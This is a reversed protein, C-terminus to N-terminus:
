RKSPIMTAVRIAAYLLRGRVARVAVALLAQLMGSSIPFLRANPAGHLCQKARAAAALLRLRPSEFLVIFRTFRQERLEGVLRFLAPVDRLAYHSQQTHVVNDALDALDDTITFGHPLVATLTDGPYTKRARRLVKAFHPGQSYFVGTHERSTM